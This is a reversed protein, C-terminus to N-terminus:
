SYPVTFRLKAFSNFNMNSNVNKYWYGLSDLCLNYKLILYKYINFM